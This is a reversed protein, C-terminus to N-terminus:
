TEQDQEGIEWHECHDCEAETVVRRTGLDTPRSCIWLNEPQGHEPDAAVRRGARAWHCEWVAQKTTIAIKFAM